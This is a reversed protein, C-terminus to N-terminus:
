SKRGKAAPRGDPRSSSQLEFEIFKIPPEVRASAGGSARAAPPVEPVAMSLAAFNRGKFAPEDGLQSIYEPVLEPELARGQLTMENTDHDISFGTLWLGSIKKRAFARMYTSFGVHSGLRDQQLYALMQQHRTLRTEMRVIENQLAENPQRPAYQQGARDLRARTEKLQQAAQGVQRILAAEQHRLYAFFCLLVLMMGASLKALLPARLRDPLRILEPNLLNIQRNM